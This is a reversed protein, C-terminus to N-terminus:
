RKIPRLSGGFPGVKYGLRQAAKVIAVQVMFLLIPMAIVLFLITYNQLLRSIRYTYIWIVLLMIALSILLVWEGAGIGALYQMGPLPKVVLYLGGCTGGIGVVFFWFTMTRYLRRAQDVAEFTVETPTTEVTTM